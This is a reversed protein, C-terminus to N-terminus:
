EGTEAAPWDVRDVREILVTEVPVDAPFRGGPGTAVAGIADVVDMGDVVTGFVAYGYIPGLDNERHNLKPNDTLNVFWQAQASEPDRTRAMAVAGRRNELGNDGEYAVPDRTARESFYQSYGGGQIVFGPVVRHFITRDYHGNTAYDLFNRVTAPANEPELAIVFAGMSTEVKVHRTKDEARAPGILVCLAALITAFRIM